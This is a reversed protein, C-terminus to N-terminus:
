AKIEKSSILKGIRSDIQERAAEDCCSLRHINQPEKLAEVGRERVCFMIADITSQPTPRSSNLHQWLADLTM